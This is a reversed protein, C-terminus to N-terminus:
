LSSASEASEGARMRLVKRRLRGLVMYDDPEFGFSALLAVYVGGIILVHLALSITGDAAPALMALALGAMAAGAGATLPKWFSRDYPWLHELVLMQVVTAINVVAIAAFTAAAAGLVDWRPILLAAGGVQVIFWVLSNVLKLRAHGTMDILSGCIGTGANVLEAGALVLLATSGAVFEPGFLGLIPERLFAIIVFFPVSFTFTWRTAATYLRRLAVLDGRDHLAAIVPKVAALLSLYAIRGLLTVRAAVAFVAVNSAVTLAGLLLIEINRRFQRLTSSLWLPLAFGVIEAGDRRAAVRNEKEHPVVKELLVIITVSAALDSVGFIMLAEMVDLSSWAVIIGLLGVRVFTQIVNEALVTAGMKRFGHAVGRLVNSVTLFPLVIAMLRLPQALAPEDFVASAIEDAAVFVGLGVIAACLGSFWFGVQLAGWLGPRDHRDALIAIYRVMARDLGLTSVGAFVTAVSIAMIYLGYQDAGLSKSLLLAVGLRGVMEFLQGAALIGGGQAVALLVGDGSSRKM